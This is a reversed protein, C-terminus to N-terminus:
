MRRKLHTFYWHVRLCFLFHQESTSVMIHASKTSLYAEENFILPIKVGDTCNYTTKLPRSTAELSFKKVPARKAADHQVRDLKALTVLLTVAVALREGALGAVPGELVLLVQRVVDLLMVQVLGLGVVWLLGFDQTTLYCYM